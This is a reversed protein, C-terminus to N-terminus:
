GMFGVMPEFVVVIVVVLMTAAVFPVIERVLVLFPLRAVACAIYLGTGVPQSSM